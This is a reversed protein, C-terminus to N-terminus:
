ADGEVIQRQEDTMPKHPPPEEWGSILYVLAAYGAFIAAYIYATTSAGLIAALTYVAALAVPPVFAAAYGHSIAKPPLKRSFVGVILAFASCTLFAWGLASYSLWGPMWHPDPRMIQSVSLLTFIAGMITLVSGRRGNITRIIRHPM